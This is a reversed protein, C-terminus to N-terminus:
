ILVRWFHNSHKRGVGPRNPSANGRKVRDSDLALLFNLDFHGFCNLRKKGDSRFAKKKRASVSYMATNVMTNNHEAM